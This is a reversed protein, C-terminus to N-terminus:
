NKIQNTLLKQPLLGLILFLLMIGFYFSYLWHDCLGIIILCISSSSFAITLSERNFTFIKKKIHRLMLYFIYCIAMIGILGNEILVLLFANHIPQYSYAPLGPKIQSLALTYNGYGVGTMWHNQLLQRFDQYGVLREEISKEELRGDGTVRNIIFQPWILSFISMLCFGGIIIKAFFKRASSNKRMLFIFFILGCLLGLFASRCATLLLGAFTIIFAIMLVIKKKFIKEELYLGLTILLCLALFGGLINPHRLTGYARLIREGNSEIVSTGILSPNQFAIGFISSAIVKQQIVQIIAIGSQLLGSAVLFYGTKRIDPRFAIIFFLLALGLIIFTLKYLALNKNLAFIVPLIFSGIILLAILWTKNSRLYFNVRSKILNKKILYFIALLFILGLLIETAYIAQSGYEWFFGNLKESKYIWRTQIPLLFIFLYFLSYITKKIIPM